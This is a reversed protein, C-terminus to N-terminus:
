GAETTAVIKSFEPTTEYNRIWDQITARPIGTLKSLKLQTFTKVDKWESWIVPLVHKLYDRVYQERLKEENQSMEQENYDTLPVMKWPVPAEQMKYITIEKNYIGGDFLALQDRSFFPSSSRVVRPVRKSYAGKKLMKWNQKGHITSKMEADQQAEMMVQVHSKRYQVNLFNFRYIQKYHEGLAIEPFYVGAEPFRLLIVRESPKKDLDFTRRILQKGVDNWIELRKWYVMDDLHDDYIVLLKQEKDKLFDELIIDNSYDVPTLHKHVWEPINGFEFECEKPVLVEFEKVPKNPHYLLNRWECNVDGPMILNRHHYELEDKCLRNDTNSKGQKPNGYLCLGEKGDRVDEHLYDEQIPLGDPHPTYTAGCQSCTKIGM